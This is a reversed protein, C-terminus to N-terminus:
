LVISRSCSSGLAEANALSSAGVGIYSILPAVSWLVIAVLPMPWVPQSEIPRRRVCITPGLTM